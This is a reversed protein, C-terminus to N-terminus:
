QLRFNGISCSDNYADYDNFIIEEYQLQKLNNINAFIPNKYVVELQKVLFCEFINHIQINKTIDITINM